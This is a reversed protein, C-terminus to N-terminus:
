RPPLGSPPGEVSWALLEVPHHARVALGREALGMRVGRRPAGGGESVEGASFNRPWLGRESRTPWSGTSRCGAAAVELLM